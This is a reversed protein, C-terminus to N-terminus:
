PCLAGYLGLMLSLDTLDVDHDHDLDGDEGCVGSSAGFNSLLIAVDPIDIGGSGDLDASCPPKGAVLYVVSGTSGALLLDIAGDNNVDGVGVCDFGVQANATTATFIRMVSGDRGSYLVCRGANNAGAGNTYLGVILDAHGDGDVDGAGRGPGAGDGPTGTFQHILAGDVGSYAYARGGGPAAYDGVYVDATGDCNVDGVGAVFFQGFTAGPSAPDLPYVLNGSAGSYVYARGQGGPGANHAGVIVDNVGDTDIDAHIGAIGSGFNNTTAEGDWHHIETQDLGSYAYARGANSGASDNGPAGVLVDDYGDNNLDGAGGVASGFGDSSAEGNLQFLLTGDAGSYVFAAGRGGFASAGVIIDHKGDDDVDGADAVATGFSGSQPTPTLRYIEAGDAGSYVFVRNQGLQPIILEMAGDDNIDALEAVAWGFNTGPNKQFTRLIQVDGEVFQGFSAASLFSTAVTSTLIFRVSHSRHM